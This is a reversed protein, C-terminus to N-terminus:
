IIGLMKSRALMCAGVVGASEGLQTLRLTTDSGILNLSYKRIASQIPLMLYDGTKAMLGGIIVMEPNLLNILGAIYKGLTFGVEEVLEIALMDGALTAYIIDSLFLPQGGQVKNQLISTQGEAIKELIRRHIYSGSAQTDLCGKKGCHCMVENDFVSNHGFEGSFGSKGYNLEGDTIIGLGLGWGVNVFLVNKEGKVVGSIYEGYAMARSDNDITVFLGLRQKLVESIPTESFYYRTYSHGTEANVRGSINVGVNLIKDKSVPLKSTFDSIIDCLLDISQADNSQKFPVDMQSYVINGNFNILALNVSHDLMDVGMFYGSDPNVGYRSPRRGGATEQKGFDVVYGDEMLEAVLKTVTPVSLDMERGLEALTNAGNLIYYRIINIKLSASKTGSQIEEALTQKMRHKKQM